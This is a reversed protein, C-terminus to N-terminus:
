RCICRARAAALADSVKELRELYQEHPYSTDPLYVSGYICDDLACWLLGDSEGIDKVKEYLSCSVGIACMARESTVLSWASNQLCDHWHWLPTEQFFILASRTTVLGGLEDLMEEVFIDGAKRANLSMVGLMGCSARRRM